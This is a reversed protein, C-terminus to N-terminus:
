REKEKKYKFYFHRTLNSVFKVNEKGIMEWWDLMELARTVDYSVNTDILAVKYPYQKYYIRDSGVITPSYDDRSLEEM